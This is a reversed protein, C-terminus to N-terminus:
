DEEHNLAQNDTAGAAGHQERYYERAIKRRVHIAAEDDTWLVLQALGTWDIRQNRSALIRAVHRIQDGLAAGNAELLRQLREESLGALALGRGTAVSRDHQGATQAMGALIVAWASEADPPTTEPLLRWFASSGATQSDLRRLSAMDGASLATRAPGGASNVARAMLGGIRAIAARVTEDTPLENTTM